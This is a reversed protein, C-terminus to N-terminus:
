PGDAGNASPATQASAPVTRASASWRRRFARAPSAYGRLERPACLPRPFSGGLVSLACLPGARRLSRSRSGSIRSPAPSTRGTAACTPAGSTPTRPRRSESRRRSTRTRGSRAARDIAPRGRELLKLAEEQARGRAIQEELEASRRRDPLPIAVGDKTALVFVWAGLALLAGATAALVPARRRALRLMREIRPVPRAAIPEGARFRRLDEAFEAASAYRRERKKEMAKLAITELEAPVGRIRAPEDRLIRSYVEPPTRGPHPPHGALLEYLIVGLAYVDTRADIPEGRVQEPAMYFPTGVVAGTRTLAPDSGLDRSLGFDVLRARGAADVLINGPKLDRHVIGAQHAAHVADASQELIGLLPAGDVLEM